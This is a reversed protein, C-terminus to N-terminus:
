VNLHKVTIDKDLHMRNIGMLMSTFLMELDELEYCLDSEMDKAYEEEFRKHANEYGEQVKTVFENLLQKAKETENM